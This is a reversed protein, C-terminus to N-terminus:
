HGNQQGLIRVPVMKIGLKRALGLRHRGSSVRLKGDSGREVAVVDAERRPDLFAQWVTLRSEPHIWGEETYDTGRERDSREADARTFTGKHLAPIIEDRLIELGRTMSAYDAKKFEAPDDIFGAADVEDINIWGFGAPLPSTDTGVAPAPMSTAAMNANAMGAQRGAAIGGSATPMEIAMYENRAEIRRQLTATGGSTLQQGRQSLAEAKAVLGRGAAEVQAFVRRYKQVAELAEDRREREYYDSDDENVCDLAYQADRLEELRAEGILSLQAMALNIAESTAQRNNNLQWGVRHLADLATDLFATSRLDIVDAM